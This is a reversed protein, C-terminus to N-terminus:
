GKVSGLMVGKAFHKQLFPYVCLIPLTAVVIVAMKVAQQPIVVNPDIESSDGAGGQSLIVIQRMLVQIPWKTSDNIYMVATFFTNWHGVAYFLSFTALAPLSLPLVISFLIRFENAGDIKASEALSEPINQFFNKLVILNFTSIAGPILLSWYTDLMGLSKVILFNPIMGGGFLMTFIIALMLKRRAFLNKHALPYAMLSTFVINILTGMVTIYVTVLLSRLVSGSSFIYKYADLSFQTPFLIFGRRLLEDNTAFSGAIVYVFPILALISAVVLIVYIIAMVGIYSLSRRHLM